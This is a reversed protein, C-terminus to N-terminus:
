VCYFGFVCFILFNFIFLLEFFLGIKNYIILKKMNSNKIYKRNVLVMMLDIRLDLSFLDLLVFIFILLNLWERKGVVIVSFFIVSVLGVFGVWLWIKIFLVWVFMLSFGSNFLWIIKFLRLKSFICNLVCCLDLFLIYWMGFCESDNLLILVFVLFVMGVILLSRVWLGSFVM